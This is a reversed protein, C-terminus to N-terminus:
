LLLWLLKGSSICPALIGGPSRANLQGPNEQDKHLAFTQRRGDRWHQHIISAISRTAPKIGNTTKRWRGIWTGSCWLRTVSGNKINQRIFAKSKSFLSPSRRHSSELGSGQASQKEAARSQNSGNPQSQGGAELHIFLVGPWLSVASAPRACTSKTLM